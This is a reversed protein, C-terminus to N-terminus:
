IYILTVEVVSVQFIHGSLVPTKLVKTVINTTKGQITYHVNPLVGEAQEM